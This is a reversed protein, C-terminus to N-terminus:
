SKMVERLRIVTEKVTEVFVEAEEMTSDYSLSIRVASKANKGPIGMAMLTSSAAAKKSSCASTTSIYIGREGLAHVFVEAKFGEISFNM